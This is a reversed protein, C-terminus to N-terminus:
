IVSSKRQFDFWFNIKAFFYVGDSCTNDSIFAFCIIQVNTILYREFKISVLLCTYSVLSQEIIIRGFNTKKHILICLSYLSSMHATFFCFLYVSMWLFHAEIKTQFLYISTKHYLLLFFNDIMLSFFSSFLTGYKYGVRVKLINRKTFQLHPSVRFFLSSM